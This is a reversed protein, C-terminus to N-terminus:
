MSTLNDCFDTVIKDNKEKNEVDFIDKLLMPFSVDLNQMREVCFTIVFKGCLTSNESQVATQNSEVTLKEQFKLYPLILHPRFSLSDFIELVGKEPKIVAIWHTGPKDAESLNTVFFTRNKMRKPMNNIAFVGLFHPLLYPLNEFYSIFESGEM